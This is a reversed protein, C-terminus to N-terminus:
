TATAAYRLWNDPGFDVEIRTSDVDSAGFAVQMMQVVLWLMVIAVLGVKAWGALDDLRDLWPSPPQPLARLERAIEADTM